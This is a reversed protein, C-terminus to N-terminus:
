VLIPVVSNWQNQKDKFIDQCLLQRQPLRGWTLEVGRGNEAVYIRERCVTPAEKREKEASRGKNEIVQLRKEWFVRPPPIGVRERRAESGGDCVGRLAAIRQPRLRNRLSGTVVPTYGSM